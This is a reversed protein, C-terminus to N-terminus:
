RLGLLSLIAMIVVILGILYILGGMAKERPLNGPSRPARHFTGAPPVLSRNRLTPFWGSDHGAKHRADV